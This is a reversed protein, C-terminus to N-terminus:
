ILTAVKARAMAVAAANMTVAAAGAMAWGTTWDVLLISAASV